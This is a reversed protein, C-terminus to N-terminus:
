YGLHCTQGDANLSIFTWGDSDITGDWSRFRGRGVSSYSWTGCPFGKSAGPGLCGGNGTTQDFWTAGGVADCSGFNPPTTQQPQPPASSSGGDCDECVVPRAQPARVAGLDFVDHAGKVFAIEMFDGPGAHGTVHTTGNVSSVYLETLHGTVHYVYGAAVLSQYSSRGRQVSM